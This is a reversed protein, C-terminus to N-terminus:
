DNSLQEPQKPLFGYVFCIYREIYDFQIANESLASIVRNREEDQFGGTVILYSTDQLSAGLQTYRTDWHLCHAGKLSAYKDKQPYLTTYYIYTPVSAHHVYLNKGSVKKELLYDFGMTLEHFGHFNWFLNVKNHQSLFFMGPILLLLHAWKKLTHSLFGLGISLLLLFLPLTFLSVRLILTYQHLASALFVLLLPFLILMLYARQKAILWVMGLVTVSLAFIQNYIGFGSACCFLERILYYNHKWENVNQPILYLFYPAHYGQLYDSVIQPRLIYWYYLGFGAVWCFGISFLMGIKKWDKRVLTQYGYYTAVAALIFVAPMSMTIALLGIFIWRLAFKGPTQSYIPMKLAAYILLLAVLVDSIYQKVTASYEILYPNLAFFGLPLWIMGAIPLTKLVRYFVFLSLIGCILPFAKMSYPGYGFLLSFLEEVWLFFVPAYQEYRLPLLLTFFDREFLNRIVNVEDIILDRNQFYMTLRLLVGLTLFVWILLKEINKYTFKDAFSTKLM